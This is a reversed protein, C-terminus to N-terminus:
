PQDRLTPVATLSRAGSRWCVLSPGTSMLLRLSLTSVPAVVARNPMNGASRVVRTADASVSRPTADAPGSPVAGPRAQRM